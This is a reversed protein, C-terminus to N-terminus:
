SQGLPAWWAWGGMQLLVDIISAELHSQKPMQGHGKTKLEQKEEPAAAQLNAESLGEVWPM